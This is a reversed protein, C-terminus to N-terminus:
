ARRALLYVTINTTGDGGTVKPRINTCAQLVDKLTTPVSTFSLSVHGADTLTRFSAAPDLAGEITVTAGGFTGEVQVSRDAAGPFPLPQGDDGAALGSWIFVEVDDRGSSVRAQTYNRTTM